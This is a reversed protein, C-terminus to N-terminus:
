KSEESRKKSPSVGLEMNIEKFVSGIYELSHHKEVFRRSDKGIDNLKSPNDLLERISEKVNRFDANVLPLEDQEVLGGEEYLDVLNQDLRCVVPKGFAMAEIATMAYWGIILQDLVIDVTAMIKLLEENKMKQIFLFEIKYGEEKLEEIAKFFHESGKCNTHNPCHLIKFVRDKSKRAVPYSPKLQKTDISIHLLLLRDWHYLYYVWDCGSIIYDAFSTWRFVNFNTYIRKYRQWLPYDKYVRNKLMLNTSYRFDQIDGGYPM